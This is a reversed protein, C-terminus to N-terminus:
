KKLYVVENLKILQGGMCISVADKVFTFKAGIKLGNVKLSDPFATPEYRKNFNDTLLYQCGDMKRNDVVTLVTYRHKTLDEQSKEPSKCSFVLAFLSLGVVYKRIVM